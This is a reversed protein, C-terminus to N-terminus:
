QLGLDDMVSRDVVPTRKTGSPSKVSGPERQLSDTLSIQNAYESPGPLLEKGLLEISRNRDADSYAGQMNRFAYASSLAENRAM